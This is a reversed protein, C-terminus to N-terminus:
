FRRQEDNRALSELYGAPLENLLLRERTPLVSAGLRYSDLLWQELRDALSADSDRHVVKPRQADGNDDIEELICVDALVRAALVAVNQRTEDYDLTSALEAGVEALLNHDAAARRVQEEALKKQVLIPDPKLAIDVSMICVGDALPVFRLEFWGRTGNPNSFENQMRDHRREIMCRRLVDFMPTEEIGPFCELMCRGLLQEKPLQAQAAAAENLYLYTWDPGIVQCGELLNDLVQRVIEASGVGCAFTGSQANM